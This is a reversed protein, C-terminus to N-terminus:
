QRAADLRVEGGAEVRARDLAKWSRPDDDIRALEFAWLVLEGAPVTMEVEGAARLAAACFDKGSGLTVVAHRPAREDPDFQAHSVRVKATALELELANEGPALEVHRVIRVGDLADGIATFVAVAPGTFPSELQAHGELDLLASPDGPLSASLSSPHLEVRWGKAPAGDVRARVALTAPNRAAGLDIVHHTALGDAVNCNWPAARDGRQPMAATSRSNPSIEHDVVRVEWAGPTLQPVTILGAGAVRRTFAQGDGRSFGVLTGAADVGRAARLEVELTGGRTMQLELSDRGQAARFDDVDLEALALGDHTALVVLDGDARATFAFAGDDDSTARELLDPDFRTEFGNVLYRDAGRAYLELEVQALGRGEFLVRGRLGPMPELVVEVAAQPPTEFPGVTALAYGPARVEVVYHALTPALTARGQEHPGEGVMGGFSGHEPDSATASFREIARGDRARVRLELRAPETLRLELGHTGLEVGRLEVPGFKGSGDSACLEFEADRKPTIRFRGRADTNSSGMGSGTWSSYTYRVSAFPLPAGDPALVVGSISESDDLAGMRLEVGRSEMGARVEFPASATEHFEDHTAVLRRLGTPVGRVVFQGDAASRVADPAFASAHRLSSSVRESEPGDFDDLGVAAGEIARGQSDLVRGTVDGGPALVLTGLQLVEGATATGSSHQTAWGTGRLVFELEARPRTLAVELAIRGDRGSLASAAAHYADLNTALEIRALPAGSADVVRAEVRASTAPEPSAAAEAASEGPAGSGVELAERADPSDGALAVFEVAQPESPALAATVGGPEANRTLLYATAVLLAAASGWKLLTSMVLAGQWAALTAVPAIPRARSLPTLALVWAARRQEQSRELGHSRDLESRLEDLAAALRTRVTSPSVGQRRGIEDSTRHEFYALLVTSRLPERLRGLAEILLRQGELRASLEAPGPLEDSATRGLERLTRASESRRRMRAFNRAVRALWPRLPRSREPPHKLAAIWTEQALDEAQSADRVLQRALASLWDAEALLEDTTWHSHAHM